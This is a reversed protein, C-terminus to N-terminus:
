FRYGLLAYLANLSHNRPFLNANSHHLVRLFFSVGSESRGFKIGAGVTPSFFFYGGLYNDQDLTKKSGVSVGAGVDLFPNLEQGHTGIRFVSSVGALLMIQGAKSEIFELNPEIRLDFVGSLTKTWAGILMGEIAQPATLSTGGGGAIEFDGASAIGFFIFTCIIVALAMRLKRPVAKRM